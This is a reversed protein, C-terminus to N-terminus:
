RLVYDIRRTCTSGQPKYCSVYSTGLRTRVVTGYLVQIAGGLPNFQSSGRAVQNRSSMSCRMRDRSALAPARSTWPSHHRGPYRASMRTPSGGTGGVSSPWRVARRALPNGILGLPLDFAMERTDDEATANRTLQGTPRLPAGPAVETSLLRLERDRPLSARGGTYVPRRTRRQGACQFLVRRVGAADHYQDPNPTSV